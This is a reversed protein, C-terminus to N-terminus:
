MMWGSARTCSGTGASSTKLHELCRLIEGDDDSTLARMTLSMPWTFGWGIHPEGIGGIGSGGEFYWPNAGETHLMTHTRQYLNDDKSAFSSTIFFHLLPTRRIGRHRRRARRKPDHLWVPLQQQTPLPYTPRRQAALIDSQRGLRRATTVASSTSTPDTGRRTRTPHAYRGKAARVTVATMSWGRRWVIPGYLHVWTVTRADIPSAPSAWSAWSTWSARTEAKRLM